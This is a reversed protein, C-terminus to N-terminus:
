LIPNVSLENYISGSLGDLLHFPLSFALYIGLISLGYVIGNFRAKAPNTSSKTFFSVTLPIMPFVCPTFIAFLGFILGRLFVAWLDSSEEGSTCDSVPDTNIQSFTELIASSADKPAEKIAIPARGGGSLDISFDQEAPMCESSNCVMYSVYGTIVPAGEVKVEQLFTVDEKFSGVEMKFLDDQVVKPPHDTQVKGVAEVNESEFNITTPIPGGPELDPAYIKWGEKIQASISVQYEGDALKTHNFSWNVPKDINVATSPGLIDVPNSKIPAVAESPQFPREVKETKKEQVAPEEKPQPAPKDQPVVPQVAEKETKSAKLTFSFDVDTPPLCREDDCVMYTVYGSITAEAGTLKVRQTFVADGEFYSVDTQFLEDFGKHLDGDEGVKGELTAGKKEEFTFTTPVPGGAGTFQSYVHWGSEVEMDFVLEFETDSIQKAKYSWDVPNQIQGCAVNLLGISLLFVGLFSQYIRM